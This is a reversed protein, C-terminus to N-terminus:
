FNYKLGAFLHLGNKKIGYCKTMEDYVTGLGWTCYYEAGGTVQLPYFLNVNIRLGALARLAITTDVYDFTGDKNELGPFKDKTNIYDAGIQFSPMLEMRRLFSYGFALGATAYSQCYDIEYIDSDLNEKDYQYENFGISGITYLAWGHRKYNLLGAYVIRAGPMKNDPLYTAETSISIKKDPRYVLVDANKASAGGGAITHFYSHRYDTTTARVTAIKKSYTRSRGTKDEKGAFSRMVIFRDGESVGHHTGVDATFPNRSKVKTRIAFQPIRKGVKRYQTANDRGKKPIKGKKVKVIPVKIQNYRSMDDWCNFVEELTEKTIKARFVFWNRDTEVYIYNNELIPLYDEELVRRKDILSIEAREEDDINSDEYARSKLLNESLSHGDYQFLYDLILKGANNYNLQNLVDKVNVKDGYSQYDLGIDNSKFMFNM